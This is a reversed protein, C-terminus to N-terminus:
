ALFYYFAVNPTYTQTTGFSPCKPFYILFGQFTKFHQEPSPNLLDPPGITHSIFFHQMSDPPFSNQTSYFPPPSVPNTVDPTPVAKQFVNNFSLYFSTFPLRLLLSSCSSSSRLSLLPYQFTFYSASSRVTHLVPKPLTEPGAHSPSRFSHIFTLIYIYIYIYIHIFTLFYSHIFSHINSNHISSHINSNHISSHINSHIFSHINSNHISSHINPHIFYSCTRKLVHGTYKQGPGSGRWCDTQYIQIASSINPLVFVALYNILLDYFEVDLSSILVKLYTDGIYSESILCYYSRGFPPLM